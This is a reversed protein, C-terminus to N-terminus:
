RPNGKDDVKNWYWDRYSVLKPSRPVYCDARYIAPPVSYSSLDACQLAEQGGLERPISWGGDQRVAVGYYGGDPCPNYAAVSTLDAYGDSRWRKLIITGSGACAPDDGDLATLTRTLFRNFPKGAVKVHDGAHLTRGYGKWTRTEVPPGDYMGAAAPALPALALGATTAAVAALRLLSTQRRPPIAM